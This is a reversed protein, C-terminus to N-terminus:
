RSNDPRCCQLRSRILRYGKASHLYPDLSWTQDQIINQLTMSPLSPITLGVQRTSSSIKHSEPLFIRYFVDM